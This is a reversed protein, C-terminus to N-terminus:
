SSPWDSGAPTWPPTRDPRLPPRPRQRMAPWCSTPPARTGPAAPGGRAPRRLGRGPDPRDARGGRGRGPRRHRRTPSDPTPAAPEAPKDPKAAKDPSKGGFRGRLKEAIPRQDPPLKGIARQLVRNLLPRVLKRLVGFLPGLALKGLVKGVGKAVKVVKGILKGVFQEQGDLASLGAVAEIEGDALSEVPRQGFHMELEALLRDSRDAVAEMWQEAEAASLQMGQESESWTGAGSLHRAAVEDALAQLAPVFDEDEFEARLAEFTEAELQSEDYSALAEAFPSSIMTTPAVYSEAETAPDSGALRAPAFPSTEYSVTM